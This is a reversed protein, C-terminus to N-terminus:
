EQSSMTRTQNQATMWSRGTEQAVWRPFQGTCSRRRANGLEVVIDRRSRDGRTCAIIRSM